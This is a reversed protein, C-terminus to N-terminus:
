GFADTSGWPLTSVSLSSFNLCFNMSVLATPLLQVDGDFFLLIEFAELVFSKLEFSPKGGPVPDIVVVAGMVVVVIVAGVVVDAVAVVVAIVDVVGIEVTGGLGDIDVVVGDSDITVVAVSGFFDIGASVSTM